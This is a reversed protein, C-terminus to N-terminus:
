KELARRGFVQQETIARETRGRGLFAILWHALVLV